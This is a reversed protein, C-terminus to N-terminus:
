FNECTVILFFLISSENRVICSNKEINRKYIKDRENLNKCFYLFFFFLSAFSTWENTFVYCSLQLFDARENWGSFCPVLFLLRCAILLIKLIRAISVFIEVLNREGVIERERSCKVVRSELTGGSDRGGKKGWNRPFLFPSADNREM